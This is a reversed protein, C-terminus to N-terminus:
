TKFSAVAEHLSASLKHLQRASEATRQVASASDNSMRAVEELERAIREGATSQEQIADSIGNVVETVRGAGQRIRGISDAAQNALEVGNGVQTVGVQMSEVANRTGDQIKAIMTAIETTSHSTREALKRVEDAVVAFGRGQEGARAAEIAANLALLNTQDAIEKITNVISSIQHSQEGLDEVIRSSAQVAESIKRMENAANHIVASGEESIAGAERSIGHAEGANERVNEISRSVQQIATSMSSAASAEAQAREAVEESARLLLDAARAVQEANSTIRAIMQRLTEQMSGINALLSDQDGARTQIPTALDGSAIRRAIASAQSPDGGLTRNINRAILLLAVAIFGGICLVGLLLKFADDRFIADVDDIYVGSGIVWGWPQFKKVYSLKTYLESSAGGGALPKPWQYQVYGHEAKDVVDNFAVFLNKNDLKTEPGNVGEVALTAKNFKADDLVKGELAPLIPHAVMKPVPKGLDNVWIYEKKDYRMAKISTLAAKQADETSLRGERAEKEFHIAIAEATEVVNRLKYQREEMMRARGSILLVVLLIALALVTAITTAILKGRLSLGTELM